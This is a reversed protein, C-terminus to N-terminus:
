EKQLKASLFSLNDLDRIHTAIASRYLSDMAKLAEYLEQRSMASVKKGKWLDNELSEEEM